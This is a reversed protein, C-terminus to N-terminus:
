QSTLLKMLLTRINPPISIRVQNTLMKIAFGTVLAQLGDLMSVQEGDGLMCRIDDMAPLIAPMAQIGHLALVAQVLDQAQAESQPQQVSAVSPQSEPGTHSGNATTSQPKASPPHDQKTSSPAPDPTPDPSPLNSDSSAPEHQHTGPQPGRPSGPKPPTDHQPTTSHQQSSANSDTSDLTSTSSQADAAQKGAKARDGNLQAHDGHHQHHDGDHQAPSARNPQGSKGEGAKGPLQGAAAGADQQARKAEASTFTQGQEAHQARQADASGSAQQQSSSASGPSREAANGQQAHQASGATNSPHSRSALSLALYHTLMNHPDQRQAYVSVQQLARNSDRAHAIATHLPQEQIAPCKVMGVALQGAIPIAM